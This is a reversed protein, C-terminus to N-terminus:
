CSEERRRNTNKIRRTRDCGGRPKGANELEPCVPGRHEKIEARFPCDNLVGYHQVIFLVSGISEAGDKMM